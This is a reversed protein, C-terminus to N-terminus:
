LRWGPSKVLAHTVLNVTGWISDATLHREISRDFLVSVRPKFEEDGEWIIYYLPIKPFPLLQYGSDGADIPQGKLYKAAEIFGNLDNGYRNLVPATRLEHPGQFFHVYKLDNISIMENRITFPSANNLYVVMMLELLPHDIKKQELAAEKWLSRDKIDIIIEEHLFALSLRTESIKSAMTNECILDIPKKGLDEWFALPVLLAEGLPTKNQPNENKRRKHMNLYGEGYPYAGIRFHDCPFFQCDRICFDIQNLIACALVPCSQGFLRIQAESKAQGERSKGSGCSSCIDLVNLGCVDCNIGCAGTPM